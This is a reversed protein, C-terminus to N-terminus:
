SGVSSEAPVSVPMTEENSPGSSKLELRRVLEEVIQRKRRFHGEVKENEAYFVEVRLCADYYILLERLTRVEDQTLDWNM